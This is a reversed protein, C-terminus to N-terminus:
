GELRVNGCQICYHGSTEFRVFKKRRDEQGMMVDQQGRGVSLEESIWHRISELVM